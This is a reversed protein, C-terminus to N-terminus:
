NEHRARRSHVSHFREHLAKAAVRRRRESSYGDLLDAIVQMEPRRGQVPFRLRQVRRAAVHDNEIQGFFAMVNRDPGAARLRLDLEIQKGEDSGFLQVQQVFRAALQVLPKGLDLAIQAGEGVRCRSSPWGRLRKEVQEGAYFQYM